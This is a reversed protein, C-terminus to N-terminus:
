SFETFLRSLAPASLPIPRPARRQPLNDRLPLPVFVAGAPPAVIDRHAGGAVFQQV